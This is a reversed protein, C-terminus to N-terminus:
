NRRLGDADYAYSFGAYTFEFERDGSSVLEPVADKPPDHPAMWRPISILPIRYSGFPSKPARGTPFVASVPMAGIRTAVRTGDNWGECQKPSGFPENIVLIGEDALWADAQKGGEVKMGHIRWTEHEAELAAKAGSHVTTEVLERNMSPIELTCGAGIRKATLEVIRVDAYARDPGIGHAPKKILGMVDPPVLVHCTAVAYGEPRAPSVPSSGDRLHRHLRGIRQLLVDMPCLDTILIDADIDLSQECTQTAVLVMGGAPRNRGFEREVAEDLHKRDEAAFRGHHPAGVHDPGAGLVMEPPLTASVLRRTAVCAGVTNRIVLVKAGRCAHSAALEAVAADDDIFPCPVVTVSKSRDPAWGGAVTVSSPEGEERFRVLPYPALAADTLGPIKGGVYKAAAEAGLTASMLVVHGGQGVHRRVLEATIRSMYVDSAHVEDIVLLSRAMSSARMHGHKTRLCALMAQDVTGAAFPAALYRKANESFWDRAGPMDPDSLSSPDCLLASSRESRTAYGPVALLVVPVDDEGFANSLARVLRSYIQVGSTRTPLAFYIGDIRGERYLRLAHAIAAETKGSGTESEILLVSGRDMGRIKIGLVAAQMANPTDIGFVSKFDGPRVLLAARERAGDIGMLAVVRTATGTAWTFRDTGGHADFGFWTESSGIWDALSVLGAFFAQFEPSHPFPEAPSFAAPFLRSIEQGFVKLTAEPSSWKWEQWCAVSAGDLIGTPLPRGHHSWTASLMALLDDANEFWGEMEDLRVHRTFLNLADLNAVLWLAERVHGAPASRHQRGPGFVKSQFGANGKGLDHLYVFVALRQIDVDTLKRGLLRSAKRRFGPLGILVLFVATVDACHDALGLWAVIPSAPDDTERRVKGWLATPELLM